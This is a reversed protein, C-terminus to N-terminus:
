SSKLQDLHKQERVETIVSYMNDLESILSKLTFDRICIEWDDVNPRAHLRKRILYFGLADKEVALFSVGDSIAFIYSHESLSLKLHDSLKRLNTQTFNFSDGNWTNDPGYYKLSIIEPCSRTQGFYAFHLIEKGCDCKVYFSYDMDRSAIVDHIM